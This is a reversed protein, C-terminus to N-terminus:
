RIEGASRTTARPSRTPAGPTRRLDTPSAHVPHRRTM